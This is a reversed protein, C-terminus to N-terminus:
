HSQGGGGGQEESVLGMGLVGQLSPMFMVFGMIIYPLGKLGHKRNIKEFDINAKLSQSYFTKLNEPMKRETEPSQAHTKEWHKELGTLAQQLLKDNVTNPDNFIEQDFGFTNEMFYEAYGKGKKDKEKLRAEDPNERPYALYLIREQRLHDIKLENLTQQIEPPLKGDNKVRAAHQVSGAIVMDVIVEDIDTFAIKGGELLHVYRNADNLIAQEHQALYDKNVGEITNPNDRTLVHHLMTTLNKKQADDIGERYYAGVFMALQTITTDPQFETSNLKELAKALEAEKGVKIGIIEGDKREFLEVYQPDDPKGELQLALKQGITRVAEGVIVEQIRVWEENVQAEIDSTETSAPSVNPVSETACVFNFNIGEDILGIEAQRLEEPTPQYDEPKGEKAKAMVITQQWVDYPIPTQGAIIVELQKKLTSAAQGAAEQLKKQDEPLQAHSLDDLARVMEPYLQDPRGSRTKGGIIGYNISWAGTQQDYSAEIGSNPQPSAAHQKAAQAHASAEQISGLAVSQFGPIQSAAELHSIGDNFVLQLQNESLLQEANLARPTEIPKVQIEPPKINIPIGESM